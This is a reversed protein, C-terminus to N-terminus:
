LQRRHYGATCPDAVTAIWGRAATAPRTMRVPLYHQLRCECSENRAYVKRFGPSTGLLFTM